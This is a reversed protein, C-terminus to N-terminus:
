LIVKNYFCSSLCSHVRLVVSFTKLNQVPNSGVVKSNGIYNEGLQAILSVHSGNHTPQGKMDLPHKPQM